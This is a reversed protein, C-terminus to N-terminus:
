RWERMIRTTRRKALLVQSFSATVPLFRAKRALAFADSNCLEFNLTFFYYAKTRAKKSAEPTFIGVHNRHIKDPMCLRTPPQAPDVYPPLLMVLCVREEQLKARWKGQTAAASRTNRGSVCADAVVLMVESGTAACTKVIGGPASRRTPASVVLDHSRFHYSIPHCM